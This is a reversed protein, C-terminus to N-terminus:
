FAGEVVELEGATIAVVDFRIGLPRFPADELWRAALGRIRARKGPGVAEVAAGFADSSRAKVECFVVTRGTAVVLDLEGDRCRWNRDLVRYGRQLYWAAARDEGEIELARRQQTM